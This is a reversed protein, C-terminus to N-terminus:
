VDMLFAADFVVYNRISYILCIMRCGSVGFVSV